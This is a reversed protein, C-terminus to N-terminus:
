SKKKNLTQPFKIVSYAKLKGTIITIEIGFTLLSIYKTKEFQLTKQFTM